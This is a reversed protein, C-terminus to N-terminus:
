RGREQQQGQSTDAELLRKVDKPRSLGVKIVAEVFERLGHKGQAAAVKLDHHLQEDINLTKSPTPPM